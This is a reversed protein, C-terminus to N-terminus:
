RGLSLRSPLLEEQGSDSELWSIIQEGVLASHLIGDRGHGGAWYLGPLQSPGVIPLQDAAVPRRGYIVKKVRAQALDPFIEIGRNVIGGLIDLRPQHESGERHYSGGLWVEGPRSALLGAAFPYIAAPSSRFADTELLLAEGAMSYIKPRLEGPLWDASTSGPAAIIIDGLYHHGSRGVVGRAGKGAVLLEEVRDDVISSAGIARRLAGLLKQPIISRATPFHLSSTTEAKSQSSLYYWGPCDGDPLPLHPVASDLNDRLAFLDKETDSNAFFSIGGARLLEGGLREAWQPWMRLAQLNLSGALGSSREPSTPFLVGAAAPSAEGAERSDLVVVRWGRHRLSVAVSLGIVGGGVIIAVRARSCNNPQNDMDTAEREMAKIIFPRRM